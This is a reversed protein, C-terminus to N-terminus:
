SIRSKVPRLRAARPQSGGAHRTDGSDVLGHQITVGVRQVANEAGGRFPATSTRPPPPRLSLGVKQGVDGGKSLNREDIDQQLMAHLALDVNGGHERAAETRLLQFDGVVEEVLTVHLNMVQLLLEILEGLVQTHNANAPQQLMAGVGIIPPGTDSPRRQVVAEVGIRCQVAITLLDGTQEDLRPHIEIVVGQVVQQHSVHITQALADFRSWRQDMFVEIKPTSAIDLNLTSALVTARRYRVRCQEM